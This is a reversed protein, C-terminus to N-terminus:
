SLKVHHLCSAIPRNIKYEFCYLGIFLPMLKKRFKTPDVGNEGKGRGRRAVRRKGGKGRSGEGREGEGKGVGM